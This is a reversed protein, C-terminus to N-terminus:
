APFSISIYLTETESINGNGMVLEFYLSPNRICAQARIQARVLQVRNTLEEVSHVPDSYVLQKV